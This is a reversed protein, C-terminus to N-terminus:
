TRNDFIRILNALVCFFSLAADIGARLSRIERLYLFQVIEIYIYIYIYYIYIEKKPHIMYPTVSICTCFQVM